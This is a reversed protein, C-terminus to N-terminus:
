RGEEGQGRAPAPPIPDIGLEQRIHAFKVRNALRPDSMMRRLAALGTETFLLRPWRQGTDLQMLGREILGTAPLPLKPKGAQPGGRWTKLQFGDAVTPLTSFFQDLERRIYDRERFTFGAITATQRTSMARLM